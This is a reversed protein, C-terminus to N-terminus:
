RSTEGRQYLISTGELFVPTAVSQGRVAKLTM